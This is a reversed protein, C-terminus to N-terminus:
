RNGVVQALQFFDRANAVCDGLFDLFEGAGVLELKVLVQLTLERGAKQGQHGNRADTWLCSKFSRILQINVGNLAKLRCNFGALKLLQGPNAMFVRLCNKPRALAPM